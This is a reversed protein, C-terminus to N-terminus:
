LKTKLASLIMHELVDIDVDSLKNIYVCGTGTKHKGLKQLSEARDESSLGMFYLSINAKRPSLGIRFWDVERGSTPSKYRVNGFGILSTGWMKPKENTAKEMLKIISLTDSRKQENDVGNIFGEVSAENETTKIKALKGM